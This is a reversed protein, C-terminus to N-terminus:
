DIKEDEISERFFPLKIEQVNVRLLITSMTHTHVNFMSTQVRSVLCIGKFDILTEILQKSM